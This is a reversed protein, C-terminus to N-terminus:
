DAQADVLDRLTQDLTVRPSWGTATRLKTADGVLAPIDAPRMFEPDPEAIANVGIISALRDFLEQLSVGTGSAVNYVEGPQGHAILSVYAA